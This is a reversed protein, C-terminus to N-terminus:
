KPGADTQLVLLVYVFGHLVVLLYIMKLIGGLESTFIPKSFIDLPHLISKAKSLEVKRRLCILQRLLILLKQM